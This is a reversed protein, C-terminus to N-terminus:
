CSNFQKTINVSFNKLLSAYVIACFDTIIVFKTGYITVACNYSEEITNIVVNYIVYVNKMDYQHM